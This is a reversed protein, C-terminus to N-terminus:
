DHSPEPKAARAIEAAARAERFIDAADLGARENFAGRWWGAGRRDQAFDDKGLGMLWLYAELPVVLMDGHVGPKLKKRQSM